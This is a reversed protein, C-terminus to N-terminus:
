RVHGQPLVRGLVRGAYHEALGYSLGLGLALARMWLVFPAVFAVAPDRKGARILFPITTVVFAMTALVPLWKVWPLLWVVPVSLLTIAVLLLQWRLDRPTHSDGGIKQPHRIYVRLRWRGFRFKRRLYHALSQAHKHYVIAQPNFILRYGRQALRFSFEVDEAALIDESFLGEKLFVSERYAASYTDIFDICHVREMSRYKEEYEVQVFRPLLGRQRTCYIGKCGMVSPDAFPRVMAEIWNPTPECDADTFLLLDGCARSIGANRAAAPGAHNQRVLSVGSRGALEATEDISGDDVIIIEYVQLDFTQNLLADICRPLTPAANYAPVIVSVAIPPRSVM